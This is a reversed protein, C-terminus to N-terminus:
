DKTTNIDQFYSNILLAVVTIAFMTIDMKDCTEILNLVWVILNITLLVNITNM